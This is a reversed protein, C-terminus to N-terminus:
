ACFEMKTLPMLRSMTGLSNIFHMNNLKGSLKRDLCKLMIDYTLESGYSDSNIVKKPGGQSYGLINEMSGRQGMVVLGILMSTNPSVIM